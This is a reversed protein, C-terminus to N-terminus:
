TEGHHPCHICAKGRFTRIRSEGDKPAISKWAWDDDNKPGTREETLPKRRNPNRPPWQTLQKKAQELEAKMAM